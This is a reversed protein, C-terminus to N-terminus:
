NPDKKLKRRTQLPQPRDLAAFAEDLVAAPGAYLRGRPQALAPWVQEGHQLPAVRVVQQEVRLAHRLELRLQRPQGLPARGVRLSLLDLPITTHNCLSSDYYGM